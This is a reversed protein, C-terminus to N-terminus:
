PKRGNWAGASTDHPDDSNSFTGRFSRRDESLVFKGSGKWKGGDQTWKFLLVTGDFITGAVTGRSSGNVSAFTGTVRNGDHILSMRFDGGSSTTLWDGAFSKSKGIRKEVRPPPKNFPSNSFDLPARTVEIRGTVVFQLEWGSASAISFPRTVNKGPWQAINFKAFARNIDVLTSDAPQAPIPNPGYYPSGSGDHDAGSASLTLEDPVGSLEIVANLPYTKGSGMARGGLKVTKGGPRGYNAWFWMTIDGDSLDDSDDVIRVNEFVIRTSLSQASVVCPPLVILACILLILRERSITPTTKTLRM